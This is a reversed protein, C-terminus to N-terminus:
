SFALFNRSFDLFIIASPALHCCDIGFLFAGPQVLQVREHFRFHVMGGSRAFHGFFRFGSFPLLREVVGAAVFSDPPEFVAERVVRRLIDGHVDAAEDVISQEHSASFLIEGGM